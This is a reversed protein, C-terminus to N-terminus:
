LMAGAEKLYKIPLPKMVSYSHMRSQGCFHWVLIQFTIFWKQFQNSTLEFIIM